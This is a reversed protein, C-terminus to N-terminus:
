LTRDRVIAASDVVTEGGRRIIKGNIIGFIELHGGKNIVDGNVMGHLYATSNVELTLNGVIMGHLELLIDAPIAISGVMLGYLQTDEDLIINGEIKGRIIKM